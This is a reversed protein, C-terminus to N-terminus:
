ISTGMSDKIDSGKDKGQNRDRHNTKTKKNIHMDADRNTAMNEPNRSERDDLSGSQIEELVEGAAMPSLDLVGNEVTKPLIYRLHRAPREGRFTTKKVHKTKVENLATVATLFPILLLHFLM